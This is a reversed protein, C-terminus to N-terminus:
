VHTEVRGPFTGSGYSYWAGIRRKRTKSATFFLVTLHSRTYTFGVFYMLLRTPKNLGYM